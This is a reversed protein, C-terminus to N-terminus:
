DGLYILVLCIHVLFINFIICLYNNKLVSHFLPNFSVTEKINEESETEFSTSCTDLSETSSTDTEESQSKDTALNVFGLALDSAEFVTSGFNVNNENLQLTVTLNKGLLQQM